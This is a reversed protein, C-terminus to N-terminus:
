IVFGGVDEGRHIIHFELRQFRTPSADGALPRVVLSIEEEKLLQAFAVRALQSDPTEGQCARYLDTFEAETVTTLLPSTIKLLEAERAAIVQQALNRAKKSASESM